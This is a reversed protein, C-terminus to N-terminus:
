PTPTATPAPESLPAPESQPAPTATPTATPTPTPTPTNTPAPTARSEPSETPTATPTATADDRSSSGPFFTTRGNDRTAPGGFVLESMTIAVVAIAFAAVGTALALRWHRRAPRRPARLGFPDDSRPPPMAARERPPLPDFRDASHPSSVPAGTGSRRTKVPTATRIAQAPKKLAESVVAVIVPTMATAVLTGRQWFLPVVVAAAVAASASIALTTISLGSQEKDM